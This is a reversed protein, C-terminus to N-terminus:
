LIWSETPSCIVMSSSSISVLLPMAPTGRADSTTIAAVSTLKPMGSAPRSKIMPMSWNRSMPREAVLTM